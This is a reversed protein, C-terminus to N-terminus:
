PRSGQFRAALRARDEDSLMGFAGGDDTAPAPEPEAGTLSRALDGLTQHLFLQELTVTYGAKRLHGVVRLSRISDGGVEFFNDDVSVRDLGIVAGWAEAVAREAPSAPPVHTHTTPATPTPLNKRDLKGNPTLPLHDLTAWSTPIMPEPLRDRLQVRWDTGPDVGPEPVVYGVLRVGTGDDRAAVVGARVGDLAVLAAEVEGPEVRMGRVKVQDDDRGLYDLEGDSRWRAVDGTRYMRQGPPGFPDPVFREATLGPRGVYGRAVQVGGICLEGPVGVPVRELGPGLVELRTNAVPAGIPVLVEDGTCRHSTVDVAAETPGYLNWLEVGPLRAACRRALEANLAEGSCVVRRLGGLGTGLAPEDLFVDLMSPVFHVTSV